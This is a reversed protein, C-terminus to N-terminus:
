LVAVGLVDRVPGCLIRVISPSLAPPLESTLVCRVADIAATRAAYSHGHPRAQSLLGELYQAAMPYRRALEQPTWGSTTQWQSLAKEAGARDYSTEQALVLFRQQSARDLHELAEMIGRMANYRSADTDAYDM